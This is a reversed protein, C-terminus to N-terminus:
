GSTHLYQLYNLYVDLLLIYCENTLDLLYYSIFQYCIVVASRESSTGWIDPTSQVSLTCFERDM